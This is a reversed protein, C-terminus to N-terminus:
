HYDDPIEMNMYKEKLVKYENRDILGSKLYGELQEMYKARGTLHSCHIAEEAEPRVEHSRKAYTSRSRTESTKPTKDGLMRVFTVFTWVVLVIWICCMFLGTRDYNWMLEIGRVGRFLYGLRDGWLSWLILDLILLGWFRNRRTKM